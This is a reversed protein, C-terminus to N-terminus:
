PQWSAAGPWLSTEQALMSLHPISQTQPSEAAAGRWGREESPAVLWTGQVEPQGHVSIDEPKAHIPADADTGSCFEPTLPLAADGDAM